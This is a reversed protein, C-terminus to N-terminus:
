GEAQLLQDAYVRAIRKSKDLLVKAIVEKGSVSRVFAAVKGYRDGRMWADTSPPMQVRDGRAIGAAMEITKAM